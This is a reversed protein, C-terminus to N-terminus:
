IPRIGIQKLSITGRASRFVIRTRLGVLPSLHRFFALSAGSSLWLRAQLTASWIDAIHRLWRAKSAPLRSFNQFILRTWLNLKLRKIPSPYRRAGSRSQSGFNPSIDTVRKSTLEPFLDVRVDYVTLAKEDAFRGSDLVWHPSLLVFM